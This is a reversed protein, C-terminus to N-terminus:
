KVFDENYRVCDVLSFTVNVEIYHYLSYIDAHSLVHIGFLGVLIFNTDQTELATAM